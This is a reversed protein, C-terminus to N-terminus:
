NKGNGDSNADENQAQIDTDSGQESDVNAVDEPEADGGAAENAAALASPEYVSAIVLEELTEPDATLEVGEPLKIDAVSVREGAEALDVISVELQDPLEMPLARVQLAELNKLIILGAKEAASEGEGVLVVPVDAEVPDNQNVAHLSIHRLRRKVPDFSADKIMAIRRKTGITLHVPHNKGADKYVKEVLNTPAMVSVPEMGPGYVTGPLLGDRRLQSVKKGTVERIDLKLTIKENSM